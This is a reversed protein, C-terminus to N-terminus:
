RSMAKLTCFATLWSTFDTVFLIITVQHTLLSYVLSKKYM